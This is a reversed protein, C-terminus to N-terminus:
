FGLLLLVLVMLNMSAHAVASATYSWKHYIYGLVLGSLFTAIIYVFQPDFHFLGFAISSITIAVALASKNFQSNGLLNKFISNQLFGRFAFEECIGALAMSTVVAVLGPTNTSLSAYLDNAQNIADSNGIITTLATAIVINLPLLAIGCGLGILVSKPSTEFRIFARVNVRKNLLYALPVALIILEGLVLAPAEGLTFLFFAGLFIVLFFTVVIVLIAELLSVNDRSPTEVSIEERLPEELLM